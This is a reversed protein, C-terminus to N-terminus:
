SEQVSALLTFDSLHTRLIVRSFVSPFYRQAKWPVTCLQAKSFVDFIFKQNTNTGKWGTGQSQIIYSKLSLPLYKTYLRPPQKIVEIAPSSTFVDIGAREWFATQRREMIWSCEFGVVMECIFPFFHCARVWARQGQLYKSKSIPRQYLVTTAM